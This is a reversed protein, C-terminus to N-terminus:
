KKELEMRINVMPYEASKTISVRTVVIGQATINDLWQLWDEFVVKDFWIKATGSEKGPQIQKIEDRLNLTKATQDVITLLPLSSKNVETQGSQDLSRIKGAQKQMWALDASQSDVQPRLKDLNNQLPTWVIAYFLIAIAILGGLVLIRQDRVSLNLWSRKLANM